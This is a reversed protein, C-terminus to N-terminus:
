GGAFPPLVDVTCSAPLTRYRDGVHVGDLLLSSADLIKTMRPGYRESIQALLDGLDSALLPEEPVGSAARASAFYRM